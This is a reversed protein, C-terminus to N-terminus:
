VRSGNAGNSGDQLKTTTESKRKKLLVIWTAVELIAAIVGLIVLVIIYAFKWKNGPDLISLGKFVNIISMVIVSYGVSHHYVNWYVRWKHDKNPRLLLAFIQLTSLCFLAIGLNRHTSYQVGKSEHGLKLGTAWGAVGIVYGSFQCSVHLYFWAPDASKFTRLHRAMIVGIPMLIGWSVANLIGHINKKRLRSDVATTGGFAQGKTLDLTGMAALNAPAFDHKQPISGDVASGVQWVQNILTTGKPLALTAFITMVGGAFEAEMDSVRYDIPSPAIPGYSSVNFTKVTMSGDPQKFAILAQSGVMAPGAPNVAWAIWGKPAPPPAVFALSLSSKTADFTWHLSSSLTPLDSCLSYIRNSSFTHSTCVSSVLLPSSCFLLFLFVLRLDSSSAM